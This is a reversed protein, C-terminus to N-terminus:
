SIQSDMVGCGTCLYISPSFSINYLFPSDSSRLVVDVTATALLLLFDSARSTLRCAKLPGPPRMGRLSERGRLITVDNTTNNDYKKNKNENFSPIPNKNKLIFFFRVSAHRRPLFFFIYDSKHLDRVNTNTYIILIRRRTEHVNQYKM